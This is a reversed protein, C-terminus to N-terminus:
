LGEFICCMKKTTTNKGQAILYIIIILFLHASTLTTGTPTKLTKGRLVGETM